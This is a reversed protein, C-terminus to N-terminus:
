LRRELCDTGCLERSRADPQHGGAYLTVGGDPEVRDGNDDVIKLWYGDISLTVTRSEGADLEVSAIGCLQYLPTVRCSDHAKAYIQVAERGCRAGTNTVTVSVRAVDATREAFFDRYAFM